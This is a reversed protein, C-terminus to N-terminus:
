CCTKVINWYDLHKPIDSIKVNEDDYKMMMRALCLCKVAADWGDVDGSPEAEAIGVDQALKIGEEVSKTEDEM